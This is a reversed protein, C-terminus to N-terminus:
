CEMVAVANILDISRRLISLDYHFPLYWIRAWARYCAKSASWRQGFDWEKKVKKEGIRTRIRDDVKTEKRKLPVVPTWQLYIISQNFEM